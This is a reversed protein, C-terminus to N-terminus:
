SGPTTCEKVAWTLSGCPYTRGAGFRDTVFASESLPLVAGDTSKFAQMWFSWATLGKLLEAMILGTSLKVVIEDLRTKVM